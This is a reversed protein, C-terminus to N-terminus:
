RSAAAAFVPLPGRVSLTLRSAHEESHMVMQTAAVADFPDILHSGEGLNSNVDYAPFNSSSIELRIAHGPQFRLATAGLDITYAVVEGPRLPSPAELSDRYRARLIGDCVNIAAGDPHVDVLKATWDTDLADTAAHLTVSVPGIADCPQLLAPTTYVLVDPRSEVRRQDFAGVPAIDPRCCSAGGVSPVPEGPDFVFIDPAEKGPLEASLAGDTLRLGALGSSRLYLDVPACDKPPWTVAAEWRDAGMLFYRVRQEGPGPPGQKLWHNFWALQFEAARNDGEEGHDLSGNLRSWPIHQWPGVALFQSGPGDAGLADSITAFAKLTGGLFIDYWGGLHLCPTRVAALGPQPILSRWDEDLRDSRIWRQAYAPLEDAALWNKLPRQYASHMDAALARIREMAKRDGRRAADPGALAQLTWSIIFALQLAGGRYTWGDFFDGGACGVAACALAPPELIATLLQNAGAYSFGYTGVRGTSGSLEAAWAITDFGDEAEHRYPEFTGDSAFRGRTDQVAVIYGHRAYWAPHGFVGSQAGVKNYPTRLVLVPHPGPRRPRYVDARLVTGDRMEVALDRQVSVGDFDM